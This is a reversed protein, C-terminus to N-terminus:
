RFYNFGDDQPCDRSIHGPQGCKYCSRDGGGGGGARGGFNGFGEQENRRGGFNEFGERNPPSRGGGGLPPAEERRIGGAKATTLAM